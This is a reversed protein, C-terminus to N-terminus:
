KTTTTEGKAMRLLHPPHCREFLSGVHFPFPFCPAAHGVSSSAGLSPDMEEFSALDLSKELSEAVAEATKSRLSLAPPPHFCEVTLRRPERLGMGGTRARGCLCGHATGPAHTSRGVAPCRRWVTLPGPLQDAPRQGLPVMWWLTLAPNRAHAPPKSRQSAPEGTRHM